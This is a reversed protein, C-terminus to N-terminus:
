GLAQSLLAGAVLAPGYAVERQGRAAAVGALVGGVLAAYFFAAMIGATGLYAGLAAALKADGGGWAGRAFAGL